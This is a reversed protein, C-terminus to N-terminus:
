IKGRKWRSKAAFLLAFLQDVQKQGSESRQGKDKPQIQECSRLLLSMRLMSMLSRRGVFLFRSSDATRKRSLRTTWSWSTLPCMVPVFVDDAPWLLVDALPCSSFILPSFPLPRPKLVAKAPARGTLGTWSPLRNTSRTSRLPAGDNLPWSPSARYLREAVLAQAASKTGVHALSCTSSSTHAVTETLTRGDFGSVQLQRKPLLQVVVQESYCEAAACYGSYSAL